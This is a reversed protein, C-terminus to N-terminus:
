RSTKKDSINPTQNEAGRKTSKLGSNNANVM